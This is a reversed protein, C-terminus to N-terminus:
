TPEKSDLKPQQQPQEVVGVGRARGRKCLMAELFMDVFEMGLYKNAGHIDLRHHQQVYAKAVEACPLTILVKELLTKVKNFETMEEDTGQLDRYAQILKRLFEEFSFMSKNKYHLLKITAVAASM